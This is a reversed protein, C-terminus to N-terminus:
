IDKGAGLGYSEPNSFNAQSKPKDSFKQM